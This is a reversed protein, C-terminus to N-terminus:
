SRKVLLYSRWEQLAGVVDLLEREHVTYNKEAANLKRSMHAVPREGNEDRKQLVAGIGTESDDPGSVKSVLSQFIPPAGALGFPVV